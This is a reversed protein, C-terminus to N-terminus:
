LSAILQNNRDVEAYDIQVEWANENINFKLYLEDTINIKDFYINEHTGEVELAINEIENQYTFLLKNNKVIGTLRLTEM